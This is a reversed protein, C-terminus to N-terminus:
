IKNTQSWLLLKNKNVFTAASYVAWSGEVTASPMEWKFSDSLGVSVLCDSCFPLLLRSCNTSEDSHRINTQWKNDAYSRLRVLLGVKMKGNYVPSFVIIIGVTHPTESTHEELQSNGFLFYRIIM